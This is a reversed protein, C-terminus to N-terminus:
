ETALADFAGPLESFGKLPAGVKEPAPELDITGVKMEVDYEGLAADLMVFAPEVFRQRADAPMDKIYLKIAAMGPREQDRGITFWMTQASLSVGEMSLSFGQRQRFAIPEFGGDRPAAQVLRKVSSFLKQDGDASIIVKLPGDKMVGLEFALGPEVKKLESAFTQATPEQGTKTQRLEVVHAGVWQWFAADREGASLAPALAASPSAEQKKSCGLVVFVLVLWRM